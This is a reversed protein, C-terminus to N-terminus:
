VQVEERGIALLRIMVLTILVVLITFIWGIAAAYGLDGREFGIAFLYMVATLGRYNPGPGDLLVYPLEFVQLAWVAGAIALFSLTPRVQPLTVHRFRGWAGAGDMVAADYLRRDVHQLAALCYIMGFGVSLYWACALMLPMVWAERNLLDLPVDIAGAWQLLRSVLSHRGSLMDSFLVAAFVVGVLHTSFFIFRLLPLLRLRRDNLLLALGLSAPIQGLLFLMAFAVTNLLSGWLLPDYQAFEYNALGAFRADATGADRQLSMWGSRALPWAFLLVMATVFPALLV